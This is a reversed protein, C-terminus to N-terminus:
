GEAMAEGELERMGEKRPLCLTVDMVDGADFVAGEPMPRPLGDPVGFLDAALVERIGDTVEGFDVVGCLVVGKLDLRGVLVLELSLGLVFVNVLILFIELM